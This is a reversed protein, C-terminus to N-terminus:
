KTFYAVKELLSIIDYDAVFIDKNFVLPSSTFNLVGKVKAKEIPEIMAGVASSPCALIVLEVNSQAARDVFTSVDYCPIGVVDRGVKQPDVDFAEVIKLKRRKGNFYQTIAQALNGMGIIAVNRPQDSDLIKGIFEVLEKIDYGRKADSSFGILMLDRRVQVATISHMHALEHSYIHSRGLSLQTLLMRRYESLREVTREPLTKVIKNEIM